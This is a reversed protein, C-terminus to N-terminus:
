HGNVSFHQYDPSGAWNGGWGWGVSSFASVLVGGPYAMGPRIDSRDVYAAGAAPQVDSGPELYPNQVTNVDIALGYAHMSWQPPGSAVALRCNFGSTNDAAMSRPDSGHFVDVPEMKMIPFRARYLVSFVDIVQKVVSANVIIEGIHARGDFGVYSLHIARLEGPQVPCGPHWSFPVDAATLPGSVTASFAALPARASAPRPAPTASHSPSSGPEASLPRTAAAAPRSTTGTCGAALLIAAGVVSVPIARRLIVAGLIHRQRGCESKHTQTMAALHRVLRAAPVGDVPGSVAGNARHNDSGLV